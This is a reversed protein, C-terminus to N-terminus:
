RSVAQYRRQDELFRIVLHRVVFSVPVRERSAYNQLEDVLASDLRLSIKKDLNM